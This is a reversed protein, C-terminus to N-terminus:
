VNESKINHYLVGPLDVLSQNGQFTSCPTLSLVHIRAHFLSHSMGDGSGVLQTAEAM